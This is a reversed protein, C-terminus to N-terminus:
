EEASLLGFLTSWNVLAWIPGSGTWMGPVSVPDTSRSINRLIEPLWKLNSTTMSFCTSKPYGSIGHMSLTPLQYTALM